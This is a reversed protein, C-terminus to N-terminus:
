DLLVSALDEERVYWFPTGENSPPLVIVVRDEVRGIQEAAVFTTGNQKHLAQTPVMAHFLEGGIMAKIVADHKLMTIYIDEPKLAIKRVTHEKDMVIAPGTYAM